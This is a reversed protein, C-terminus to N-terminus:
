LSKGLEYGMINANMVNSVKLADGIVKVDYGEKELVEQLSNNPKSGIALVVTDAPLKIQQGEKEVLVYEETIELVKTSIHIGIQRQNLYPMLVLKETMDNPLIDPLMEVIQASKFQVALHFATEVGVQGGGIVINNFGVNVKGSLVDNATVVNKSDIGKIPPITPTAGTALIITDVEYQKLSEITAETNLYVPIGLNQCEKMQWNIFTTLEGKFPPVSALRFQGGAMHEKELVVVDHGKKKAEIAASLGAPGAGIVVVKKKEVAKEEEQYGRGLSPNLVCSAPLQANLRNICGQDCGICRRIDEMRGELAKNPLDPDALSARGMAVFDAKNAKIMADALRPDNFRNVTIVPIDVVKKIDEAYSVINGHDKVYMSVTPVDPSGYTGVSIHILDVGAEEVAMAITQTDAISRGGEIHEDGSIRFGVIFDDGCKAKVNDIVELLFRMRNDLSGGYIDARKNTYPSLFEAILYGHGGHIEVGDFGCKKARLATDGFQEVLEHIEDITLEHPMEMNMPCPIPSPAVPQKGIIRSNTQRGCHYIQALITAGYKHANEPIKSHGEIQEDKWLGAVGVYGKAYPNIAYDETIILGWGGKAKEEHYQIYKDTAFGDADCYNMVMAPVVLRNKITKGKITYPNFINKLM